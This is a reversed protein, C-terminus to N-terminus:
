LKPRVARFMFQIVIRDGYIADFADADWGELWINIEIKGEYYGSDTYELTVLYSDDTKAYPSETEFESFQYITNPGKNPAVITTNRYKNYYDIAGYSKGFGREENGSFDFIKTINSSQNYFAVRMADRAYYTRLEGEKVIDDPGYQFDFNPKFRVGKSAIYTGLLPLNEYNPDKVLDTLHIESYNSTTRFYITLNLFEKNKVAVEPAQYGTMFNHGDQTTVDEFSFHEILSAIEEKPISDYYNIGDLSMELKYEGIATIGIDDIKNMTALSVWAFSSFITLGLVLVLSLLSFNLRKM